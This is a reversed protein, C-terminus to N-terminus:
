KCVLNIHKLLLKHVRERYSAHVGQCSHACRKDVTDHADKIDRVGTGIEYTGVQAPVYVVSRSVDRKGENSRGDRYPSKAANELFDKVSNVYLGVTEKSLPARVSLGVHIEKLSGQYLCTYADTLDAFYKYFAGRSIHAEKIIRAVQSQTLPYQSFEHLLASLIREKKESPLKEFTTSPM